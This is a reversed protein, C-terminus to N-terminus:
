SFFYKAKLSEIEQDKKILEEKAEKLELKTANHKNIFKHFDEKCKLIQNKHVAMSKAYKQDKELLLKEYSEHEEELKMIKIELEMYRQSDDISKKSGDLDSLDQQMRSINSSHSENKNDVQTELKTEIHDISDLQSKSNLEIREKVKNYKELESQELLNQYDAKSKTLEFNAEELMLQLTEIKCYSEKLEEQLKGVVIERMEIKKKNYKEFDDKLKSAKSKVSKLENVKIDYKAKYDEKIKLTNKLEEKIKEYDKKLEM